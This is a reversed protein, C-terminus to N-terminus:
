YVCARRGIHIALHGLGICPLCPRTRHHLVQRGQSLYPTSRVQRRRRRHLPAASWRHLSRRNAQPPFFDMALIAM